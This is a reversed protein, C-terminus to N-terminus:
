YNLYRRFNVHTGVFDPWYGECRGRPIYRGQNDCIWVWLLHHQFTLDTPSLCQLFHVAVAPLTASVIDMDAARCVADRYHFRITTSFGLTLELLLSPPLKLAPLSM